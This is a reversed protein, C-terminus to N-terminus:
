VALIVNQWELENEDVYPEGDDVFGIKRNMSAVAINSKLHRSYVASTKINNKIYEILAIMTVSGIGKGRFEIDGIMLHASPSKVGHNEVLEIWAVGIIRKDMRIMWTLQKNATKLDIFEKLTEQESKLSPITLEHEANGM